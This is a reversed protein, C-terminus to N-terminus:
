TTSPSSTPLYCVDAAGLSTNPPLPLICSSRMTRICSAVYVGISEGSASPQRGADALALNAVELMKRQQPNMVLAEAPPIRFTAANSTDAGDIFGGERVCAKSKAAPDLDCCFDNNFRSLPM